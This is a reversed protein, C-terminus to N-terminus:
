SKRRNELENKAELLIESWFKIHNLLIDDDYSILLCEQMGELTVNEGMSAFYSKILTRAMLVSDIKKDFQKM